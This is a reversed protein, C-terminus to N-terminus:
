NMAHTKGLSTESAIMLAEEWIIAPPVIGRLQLSKLWGSVDSGHMTFLVDRFAETESATYSGADRSMFQDLEEDDYYVIENSVLSPQIRECVEHAQCCDEIIPKSASRVILSKVATSYRALFWGIVMVVTIGSIIIWM